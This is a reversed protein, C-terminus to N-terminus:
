TDDGGIERVQQAHHRIHLGARHRQLREAEAGHVAVPVAGGVLNRHYSFIIHLLFVCAILSIFVIIM